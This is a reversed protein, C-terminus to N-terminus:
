RRTTWLVGEESLPELGERHRRLQEQMFAVRGALGGPYRILERNGTAAVAMKQRRTNQCAEAEAPDKQHWEILALAHEATCAPLPRDCAFCGSPLSPDATDGCVACIV